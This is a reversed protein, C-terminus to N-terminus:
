PVTTRDTAGAGIALRLKWVTQVNDDPDLVQVDAVYLSAILESSQEATLGFAIWGSAPDAVTIGDSAGGDVWSSSVVADTDPLNFRQKVSFWVTCGTLDFPDGTSDTLPLTWTKTDGRTILDSTMASQQAGSPESPVVIVTAPKSLVEYIEIYEHFIGASNFIIHGTWSEATTPTFSFRYEGSGIEAITIPATTLPAATAYAEAVSFDAAAKGTIAVNAYDRLVFSDNIAANIVTAM